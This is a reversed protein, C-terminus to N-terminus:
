FWMKSGGVLAGLAFFSCLRRRTLCSLSEDDGADVDVDVVVVHRVLRQGARAHFSLSAQSAPLVECVLNMQAITETRIEMM